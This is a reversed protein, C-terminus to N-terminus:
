QMPKDSKAKFSQMDEVTHWIQMRLRNSAASVSACLKVWALIFNHTKVKMNGHIPVISKPLMKKQKTKNKYAFIELKMKVRQGSHEEQTALKHRLLVAPQLSFPFSTSSCIVFAAERGM